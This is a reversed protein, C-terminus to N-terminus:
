RGNNIRWNKSLEELSQTLDDPLFSKLLCIGRVTKLCIKKDIGASDKSSRLKIFDLEELMSYLNRTGNIKSDPFSKNWRALAEKIYSLSVWYCDEGEYQHNYIELRSALKEAREDEAVIQYSMPKFTFELFEISTEKSNQVDLAEKIYYKSIWSWFATNHEIQQQESLNSMQLLLSFGCLSYTLGLALRPPINQELLKHYKIGAEKQIIPAINALLIDRCLGSLMFRSLNFDAAQRSNFNEKMFHIPLIRQLIPEQKPLHNSDICLFANLNREIPVWNDGSRQQKTRTQGDFANLLIGEIKDRDKGDKVDNISLLLSSRQMLFTEISARTSNGTIGDINQFGYFNNALRILNTKGTGKEGYLWLISYQETGSGVAIEERFLGSIATAFALVGWYNYTKLLYELLNTSTQKVEETTIKLNLTPKQKIQESLQFGLINGKSDIGTKLHKTKPDIEFLKGESICCNDFLFGEPIKGLIDKEKIIIRLKKELHEKLNVMDLDRISEVWFKGNQYVWKNLAVASAFEDTGYHIGYCNEKEGLLDVLRITKGSITKIDIKNGFIFNTLKHKSIEFQLKKSNPDIKFNIIMQWYSSNCIETLAKNITYCVSSVSLQKQVAEIGEECHLDNFDSLNKEKQKKIRPPIVVAGINNICAQEACRMGTNKEFARLKGEKDYRDDDAAIVLGLESKHLNCAHRQIMGAIKQLNSASFAIFVPYNTALYITLATAFGECLYIYGLSNIEYNAISGIWFCGNAVIGYFRKDYSGNANPIIRQIGIMSELNNPKEYIPILLEGNYTRLNLIPLVSELFSISFAKKLLYGSEEQINIVLQAKDWFEKVENIKTKREEVIRAKQEKEIKEAIHELEQRQLPSIKQNQWSRFTQYGRGNSWDIFSVSAYDIGEYTWKNAIYSGNQDSSKDTDFRHFREDFLIEKPAYGLENKIHAIIECDQIM